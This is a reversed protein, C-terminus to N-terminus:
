QPTIRGNEIVQKWKPLEEVIRKHFEDPGRGTSYFGANLLRDRV